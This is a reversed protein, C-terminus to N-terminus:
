LYILGSFDVHKTNKKKRKINKTEINEPKAASNAISGTFWDRNSSELKWTHTNTNNQM